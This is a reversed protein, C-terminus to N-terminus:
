PKSDIAMRVSHALEHITLPKLLLGRIGISPLMAENAQDSFGTCLVIPLDPRIETLAQALHVGTMEPMTLDTIVLDFEQPNTRIIELAEAPRTTTQVRYGLRGLIKKGMLTLAPEDDVFLIRESGGIMPTDPPDTEPAEGKAGPLYVEFVTGKRVVSSVKITGGHSKVIGHAVSLGLGTGKGIEKTTFYPEFIRKLIWPQMGHGTDSVSLKVYDGPAFGPEVPPDNEGIRAHSISITLVGGEKEMAHAANTCLNMLVQQMQTPDAFLMGSPATLHLDLRITAPMSARLLGITEKVVPKLNILIKEQKGRRSFALIQRVLERARKSATIIQDLTEKSEGSIAGSYELIQANALIIALINNFDHAVGGALTGIAEMKQAELYQQELEQEKTIDRKVAVYNVINGSADLVPSITAEETYLSGDRKKNVLRGHWTKGSLLTAWMKQYFAHGHEGSKLIRPTKGIVESPGYGTIKELAPNVYLIESKPDTILVIEAAQEIAAALRRLEEQAAKTDTVDWWAGIVQQSGDPRVILRQEDHVWHYKGSADKFRYEFVHQGTRELQVLGETVTSLDAPHLCERWHEFNETFREPKWGLISEVNRSIYKLNPQPQPDYTFVVAPSETVLFDLRRNADMLQQEAQRLQTIDWVVGLVRSPQGGQDGIVRGQSRMWRVEGDARSIRFEVGFPSRSEIAARTAAQISDRDEPLVFKYFGEATGEFQDPTVGYLRHHADDWAVRRTKLDLEWVGMQASELALRLRADSEALAAEAKKQSDIETSTGYWKVVHGEPGRVPTTRSLHWRYAGDRQLLRHEIEHTRGTRIAHQWADVTSPLDDAHVVASWEWGGDPQKVFGNFEEVRRNFYDMRGDPAATWVLQPMSDSLNRFRLESDRLAAESRKRETIDRGISILTRVGNFTAGKSSIEVPFASGDKRRHNTEFLIGETDAKAMQGSVLGITDPARLDQVRLQLLEDRSYGYAECAATNAEIIRSDERRIFLIIDRSNEILVRFNSETAKQNEDAKFFRIMEKRMLFFILVSTTLVFGWGKVTQILTITEVTTATAALLRDSSLIWAVSILAYIAAVKSATLTVNRESKM